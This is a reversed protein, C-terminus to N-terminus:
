IGPTMDYLFLSASNFLSRHVPLSVKQSAAAVFLGSVLTYNTVHCGCTVLQRYCTAIIRSGSVRSSPMAPDHLNDRAVGEQKVVGPLADSTFLVEGVNYLHDSLEVEVGLM